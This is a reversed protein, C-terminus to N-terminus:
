SYQDMTMMENRGYDRIAEDLPLGYQMPDGGDRMLVDVYQVGDILGADIFIYEVQATAWRRWQALTLPNGKLNAAVHKARLKVTDSWPQKDIWTDVSEHPM